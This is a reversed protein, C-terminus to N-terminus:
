PGPVAEAENRAGGAMLCQTTNEIREVIAAFTLLRLAQLEGRVELNFNRGSELVSSLLDFTQFLPAFGGHGVLDTKTLNRCRLTLCVVAKRVADVQEVV